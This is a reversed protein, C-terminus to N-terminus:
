VVNTAIPVFYELLAVGVRRGVGRRRGRRGWACNRLRLGQVEGSAAASSGGSGVHAHPCARGVRLHGVSVVDLKHRYRDPHAEEEGEEGVPWGHLPSALLQPERAIPVAQASPVLPSIHHYFYVPDIAQHHFPTRGNAISTSPDIARHNFSARGGKAITQRRPTNIALDGHCGHLFLFM